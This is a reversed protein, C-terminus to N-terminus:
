IKKWQMKWISARLLVAAALVIGQLILFVAFGSQNGESGNQMVFFLEGVFTLGTCVAAFAARGPMKLVSKEYVYARLPDKGAYLRCITWCVSACGTLGAAYPLLVYFCNDMGPASICGAAIEAALLVACLMSLIGKKWSLDSGQYVYLNGKYAYEGHENKQFDKLYARRGKKQEAM